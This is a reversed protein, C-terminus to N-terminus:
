YTRHYGPRREPAYPHHVLEATVRRPALAAVTRGAAKEGGLPDDEKEPLDMLLVPPKLYRAFQEYCLARQSM